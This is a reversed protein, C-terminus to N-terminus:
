APLAIREVLDDFHRAVLAGLDIEADSLLWQLRIGDLWAILDSAEREPDVDPRIEGRDIGERIAGSALARVARYRRQAWDRVTSDALVADATVLTHFATLEPTAAMVEGWARMARIAALGGPAVLESMRDTQVAAGHRLTADVLADRTPFHHLLGADTLGVRGAIAAISTAHLGRTGFMEVAAALIDDVAVKSPRGVRRRRGSQTTSDV